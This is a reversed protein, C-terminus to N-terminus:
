RTRAFILRPLPPLTKALAFFIPQFRGNFALRQTFHAWRLRPRFARLWIRHHLLITESWSIKDRAYKVLTPAALRASEFAMSMGNGTLPAIMAAADGIAFKHESFDRDLTIAAVACFSNPQWDANQLTPINESLLKRWDSIPVRAHFLGCVNVQNGPLRCIGVYRDPAFHLEIDASLNVGTAHAKLGVLHGGKVKARRRGSAHVLGPIDPPDFRSNTRLEGGLQEFHHALCDDLDFRSACLANEKLRMQLPARDGLFIFSTTAERAALSEGVLALLINRGEGSIFEGCVRHRPYRSAEHIIVPIKERRLFIGLALGALGGGVITIPKM